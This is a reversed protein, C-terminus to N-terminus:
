NEFDISEEIENIEENYKKDHQYFDYKKQFEIEQIEKLFNKQKDIAEGIRKEKNSYSEYESIFAEIYPKAKLYKKKEMFNNSKAVLTKWVLEGNLPPVSLNGGAEISMNDFQFQFQNNSVEDKQNTKKSNIDKDNGAMDILKKAKIYYENNTDTHKKIIEFAQKATELNEKRTKDVVANCLWDLYTNVVNSLLQKKAASIVIECCELTEKFKGQKFLESIYKNLFNKTYNDLDHKLITCFAQKAIEFNNEKTNDAIEKLPKLYFDILDSPKQKKSVEIAIGFYEIAKELDSNIEKKINSSNIYKKIQEIKDQLKVAEQEYEKANLDLKEADKTQLESKRICEDYKEEYENYEDNEDTEEESNEKANEMQTEWFSANDQLKKATKRKEQADKKYKDASDLCKKIQQTFLVINKEYKEANEKFKEAYNSFTKPNKALDSLYKAAAKDGESLHTRQGPKPFFFGMKGYKSFHEKFKDSFDFNPPSLSYYMSSDFDHPGHMKSEQKIKYQPNTLKNGKLETYDRSDERSHEHYLGVVHGLEHMISGTGFAGGANGDLDCQTYQQGGQRGAMSFCSGKINEEAIILFDKQEENTRKVFEFGTDDKAANWINVADEIKKRGDEGVPYTKTDIEYHIVGNPWLLNPHKEPDITNGGGKIKQNVYVKFDGNDLTVLKVYSNSLSPVLKSPDNRIEYPIGEINFDSIIVKQATEKVSVLFSLKGNEDYSATVSKGELYWTQIIDNAM